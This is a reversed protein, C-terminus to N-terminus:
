EQEEEEQAHRASTAERGQRIRELETSAPLSPAM